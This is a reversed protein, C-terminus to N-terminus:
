AFWTRLVCIFRINSAICHQKAFRAQFAFTLNAITAHILLPRSFNPLYYSSHFGKYTTHSHWKCPNKAFKIGAAHCIATLLSCRKEAVGLKREESDNNLTPFKYHIMKWNLSWKWINNKRMRLDEGAWPAPIKHLIIIINCIICLSQGVAYKTKTM